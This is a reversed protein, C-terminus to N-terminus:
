EDDDRLISLDIGIWCPVRRFWADAGRAETEVYFFGLRTTFSLNIVLNDTNVYEAVNEAKVEAWAQRSPLYLKCVRTIMRLLQFFFFFSFFLRANNM